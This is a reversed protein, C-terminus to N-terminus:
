ATSRSRLTIQRAARREVGIRLGFLLNPSLPVSRTCASSTFGVAPESTAGHIETLVLLDERLVDIRLEM